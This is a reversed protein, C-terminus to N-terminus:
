LSILFVLYFIIGYHTLHHIMQDLGSARFYEKSPYEYKGFFSPSAKIRDVSFHIVTDILFVSLVITIFKLSYSCVSCYSLYLVAISASGVGHQFAHLFLPRVWGHKQFKKYHDDNNFQTIYDVIYHKFQFAVLLVMLEIINLLPYM